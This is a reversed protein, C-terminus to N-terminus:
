DQTTTPSFVPTWTGKVFCSRYCCPNLEWPLGERRRVELEEPLLLLRWRRRGGLCLDRLELALGLRRCLDFSDALQRRHAGGLSGHAALARDTPVATHGTARPTDQLRQVLGPASRTHTDGKFVNTSMKLCEPPRLGLEWRDEWRSESPQLGGLPRARFHPGWAPPWPLSSPNVRPQKKPLM